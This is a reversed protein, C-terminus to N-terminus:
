IGSDPGLTSFGHPKYIEHTDTNAELQDASIVTDKDAFGLTLGDIFCDYDNLIIRGICVITYDDIDFLRQQLQEM